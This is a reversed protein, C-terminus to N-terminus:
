RMFFTTGPSVNRSIKIKAGSFYDGFVSQIFSSFRSMKSITIVITLTTMPLIQGQLGINGAIQLNPKPIVVMNPIKVSPDQYSSPVLQAEFLEGTSDKAHIVIAQDLQDANTTKIKMEDIIFPITASERTAQAESSQSVSVSVGPPNRAGENFGFATWNLPGATNNRVVITLTNNLM